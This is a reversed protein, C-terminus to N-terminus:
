VAGNRCEAHKKRQNKRDVGRAPELDIGIADPIEGDERQKGRQESGTQQQDGGVPGHQTAMGHPHEAQRHNVMRQQGPDPSQDRESNCARISERPMQRQARRCVNQGRGDRQPQAEFLDACQQRARSVTGPM